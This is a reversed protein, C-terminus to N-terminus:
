KRGGRHCHTCTDALADFAKKGDHCNEVCGKMTPMPIAADGDAQAINQHCLLCEKGATGVREARAHRAHDFAGTVAYPNPGHAVQVPAAGPKGDHCGACQAMFPELGREHCVSCQAHGVAMTAGRKPAGAGFSGHCGECQAGSAQGPRIHKKHSYRAPMERPAGTLVKTGAPTCRSKLNVHCAVCVKGEKRALRDCSTEFSHCSEFCRAHEKKGDHIWRGDSEARHCRGACAEEPKGAGQLAAAHAQHDFRREHRPAPKDKAALAVPVAVAATALALLLYVRRM